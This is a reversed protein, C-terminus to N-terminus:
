KDDEEMTNVYERSIIYNLGAKEIDKLDGCYRYLRITDICPGNTDNSKAILIDGGRAPYLCKLLLTQWSTLGCSHNHQEAFKIIKLLTDLKGETYIDVDYEAM